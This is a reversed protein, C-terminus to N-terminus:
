TVLAAFGELQGSRLDTPVQNGWRLPYRTTQVVINADLVLSLLVLGRQRALNAV